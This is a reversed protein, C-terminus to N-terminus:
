RPQGFARDMADAADRMLIPMVHTYTDMTLQYSAHGLVEMVVRASVGQGLLLSAATHRTDYFRHRPVGAREQLRDFFRTVNREDLPTGISTTFVLGHDNWREGAALREELQRHRHERLTKVCVVPLAITRKSRQTKPEVLVLRGDQRRLAHRVRLLGADLDVDEWSLGLAEGPRLGVAMAVTYLAELRDGRAAVLLKSAEEPTFPMVEARKVTIPDVLTAVNRTVYEWRQATALASRLIAHIYQVSRASQGEARKMNILRQVDTPRLKALTIHGLVPKIHL